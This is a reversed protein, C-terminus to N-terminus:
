RYNPRILPIRPEVGFFQMGAPPTQIDVDRIHIGHAWALYKSWEERLEHLCRIMSVDDRTRPGSFWFVIPEKINDAQAPMRPNFYAVGDINSFARDGNQKKKQLTRTLVYWVVDPRIDENGDSAVWLLGKADPLGLVQKTSRIQKNAAVFIHKQFPEGLADFMEHQCDIPLQSSSIRTTGYIRVRGQRDWKEILDSFKRHFREVFGGYQLAKLEAIVNHKRFLYDASPKPNSNPVLESVVEGDVRRVFPDIISHLTRM